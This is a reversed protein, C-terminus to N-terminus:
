ELFIVEERNCTGFFCVTKDIQIVGYAVVCGDKEILSIRTTYENCGRIIECDVEYVVGGIRVKDYKACHEKVYKCAMDLTIETNNFVDMNKNVIISVRM